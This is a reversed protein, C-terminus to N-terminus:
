KLLQKVEKSLIQAESFEQIFSKRYKQFTESDGDLAAEYMGGLSLTANYFLPNVRPLFAKLELIRTSLSERLIKRNEFVANDVFGESEMDASVFCLRLLEQASDEMTQIGGLRSIIEHTLVCNYFKEFNEKNENSFFRYLFNLDRSINAEFCAKRLFTNFESKNKFMKNLSHLAWFSHAACKEYDINERTFNLVKELPLPHEKSADRAYKNIISTEAKQRIVNAFGCEIWFPIKKLSEESGSKEMTLKRLIAGSLLRSLTDLDLNEDWRVAIIIDTNSKVDVSVQGEFSTDKSDVINIVIPKIFPDIKGFYERMASESASTITAIKNVVMPMDSFVYYFPNEHVFFGRPLDVIELTAPTPTLTGLITEVFEEQAYAIACVFLSTFSLIRRVM